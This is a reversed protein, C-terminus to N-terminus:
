KARNELTIARIESKARNLTHETKILTAAGVYRTWTPLKLFARKGRDIDGRFRFIVDSKLIVEFTFIVDSMLSVDDRHFPHDGLM